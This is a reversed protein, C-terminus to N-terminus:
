VGANLEGESRSESHTSQNGPLSKVARRVKSSVSKATRKKSELLELAVSIDVTKRTDSNKGTSPHDARNVDHCEQTYSSKQVDACNEKCTKELTTNKVSKVKKNRKRPVDVPANEAIGHNSNSVNVEIISHATNNFNGDSINSREEPINDYIANLNFNTGLRALKKREHLIIAKSRRGSTQNRRARSTQNRRSGKLKQKIKGVIATQNGSAPKRPQGSQTVSPHQESQTISPHQKSQIVSPHQDSQTISPHQESQPLQRSKSSQRSRASYRQSIKKVPNNDETVTDASNQPLVSEQQLLDSCSNESDVLEISRDRQHSGKLKPIKADKIQKPLSEAKKEKTSKGKSQIPKSGENGIKVSNNQETNLDVITNKEEPPAQLSEEISNLKDPINLKKRVKKSKRDDVMQSLNSQIENRNSMNSEKVQKVVLIGDKKSRKTKNVKTSQLKLLKTNNLVECDIDKELVNPDTDEEEDDKIQKSLSATDKVSHKAKRKSIRKVGQVETRRNDTVDETGRNDTVDTIQKSSLSIDPDIDQEEDVKIEQPSTTDKKSRKVKRKSIRKDGQLKKRRNETVDTIQQSALSIDGDEEDGRIQKPPSAQDKISHKVKRKSIKSDGQAKRRNDTM